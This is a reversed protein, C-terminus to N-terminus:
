SQKRTAVAARRQKWWEVTDALGEGLSRKPAWGTASRLRSNDGVIYPPEYRREERAGLRVLHANGTLEATESILAAYTVPEGSCVNFTGSAGAEALACLGRAVDDIHMYDRVQTGAIAQFEKGELLSNILAPVLRREDEYPGYLYFLRAWSFGIGLTAARRAGIIGAALKCAAYITAPATPGDEQLLGAETDYEFCTGVMVAHRCGAAALEDLLRLSFALSEVNEPADLYRGPIVYWALHICAEPQWGALSALIPSASVGETPVAGFDGKVDELRWFSAGLRALAVVEHGGAVLNRVVHSGVFGSAGTVLVRM